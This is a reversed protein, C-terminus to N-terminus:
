KKIKKNNRKTKEMERSTTGYEIVRLLNQFAEMDEKKKFIYPKESNHNIIKGIIPHTIVRFGNKTPRIICDGMTIKIMEKEIITKQKVM